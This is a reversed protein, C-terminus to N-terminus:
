AMWGRTGSFLPLEGGAYVPCSPGPHGIYGPFFGRSYWESNDLSGTELMAPSLEPYHSLIGMGWVCVMWTAGALEDSCMVAVAAMVCIWNCGGEGGIQNTSPKHKPNPPQNIIEMM